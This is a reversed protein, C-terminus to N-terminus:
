IINEAIEACIVDERFDIISDNKMEFINLSCNPPVKGRWFNDPLTPLLNFMLARVAAGHATILITEDQYKPDEILEKVFGRARKCIHAISEGGDPPIYNSPDKMFKEFEDMPVEARSPEICLGEWAGFSIEEIRDDVIIPVDREGLVLRATEQARRLPSSFARSFEVQALEKGVDKAQEIGNENLEIESRGQLRREKNWQTQGHRMIYLKM